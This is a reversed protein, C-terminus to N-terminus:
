LRQLSKRKARKTQVIETVIETVAETENTAETVEANVEENEVTIEPNTTTTTDDNGGCAAFSFPMVFVMLLALIKKM